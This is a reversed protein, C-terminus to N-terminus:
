GGDSWFIEPVPMEGADPDYTPAPRPPAAPVRMPPLEVTYHRVLAWTAGAIAIVGLVAARAPLTWSASRAPAGALPSRPRSTKRAFGM